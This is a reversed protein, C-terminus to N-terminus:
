MRVEDFWSKNANEINGLNKLVVQVKEITGYRKLERKSSDWEYYDGDNWDATYVESCGGRALYEINQLNNYPIWETIMGPHLSAMQCEKILDDIENNGSTWDSFKDKLYNQMCHECYQTAFWEKQCYECIRKEGREFVVKHYDHSISIMKIAETKEEETLSEDDHIMQKQFEFRKDMDNRIDSEDFEENFDITKLKQVAEFITEYRITSM